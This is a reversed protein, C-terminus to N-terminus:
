SKQVGQSNMDTHLQSILQLVSYRPEDRLSAWSVDQHSPHDHYERWGKFCFWCKGNAEPHFGNGTPVRLRGQTLPAGGEDIWWGSVPRYPFDVAEIRLRVSAQMAHWRLEVDLHPYSFDILTIGLREYKDAGTLLPRIAREFSAQALKPHVIAAASM